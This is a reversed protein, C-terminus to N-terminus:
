YDSWLYKDVYQTLIEQIKSPPPTVFYQCIIAHGVEHAFVGESSDNISIYIAWRRHEYFAAMDPNHRERALYINIHFRKPRMDLITEVREVIRDIRNSALATDGSFEFQSGGLRWVFDDMDKDEAYHIIAYKTNFTKETQASAAQNFLLAFFIILCTILRMM